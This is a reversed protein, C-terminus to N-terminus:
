AAQSFTKTRFGAVLEVASLHHLASATRAIGDSM